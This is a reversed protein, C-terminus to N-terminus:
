ALFKATVFPGWAFSLYITHLLKPSSAHSRAGKSPCHSTGRSIRHSAGVARDYDAAVTAETDSSVSSTADSTVAALLLLVLLELM